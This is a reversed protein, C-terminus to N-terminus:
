QQAEPRGIIEYRPNYITPMGDVPSVMGEFAIQTGAEIGPVRRQGIWVLRVQARLRAVSDRRDSGTTVPPADDSVVAAFQPASSRPLVTIRSIYGRARARGRTPLGGVTSAAGPHVGASDVGPRDAM